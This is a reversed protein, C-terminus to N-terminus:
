FKNLWDTEMVQSIIYKIWYSISYYKDKLELSQSEPCYSCMLWANCSDSLNYMKIDSWLATMKLMEANSTFFPGSTLGLFYESEVTTPFYHCWVMNLASAHHLMNWPNTSPSIRFDRGHCSYLQNEIDSIFNQNM